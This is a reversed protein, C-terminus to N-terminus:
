RHVTEKAKVESRRLLVVRAKRLLQVANSIDNSAEHLWADCKLAHVGNVHDLLGRADEEVKRVDFSEVGWDYYQATRMPVRPNFNYTKDAM